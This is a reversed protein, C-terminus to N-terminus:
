SADLDPMIVVKAKGRAPVTFKGGSSPTIQFEIDFKGATDTDGAQWAYHFKGTAPDANLTCAGATIKLVKTSENVMNAVIAADTIDVPAGNADLVKGYYYPQLDNRRLYLAEVRHSM